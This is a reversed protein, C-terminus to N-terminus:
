ENPTYKLQSCKKINGFHTRAHLGGNLCLYLLSTTNGNKPLNYSAFFFYFSYPLFRLLLSFPPYFFCYTIETPEFYFKYCVHLATM